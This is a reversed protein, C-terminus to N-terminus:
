CGVISHELHPMESTEEEFELGSQQHFTKKRNFAAKAMLTNSQIKCTCRADNTVTTGMPNFYEVNELKEDIMIQLSSPQRSIRMVNTKEVNIEM